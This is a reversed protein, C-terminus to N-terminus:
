GPRSAGRHSRGEGELDRPPRQSGCLQAPAQLPGVSSYPWRGTNVQTRHTEHGLHMFFSEEKGVKYEEQYWKYINPKKKLVHHSYIMTERCLLCQTEYLNGNRGHWSVVNIEFLVYSGVVFLQGLFLSQFCVMELDLVELSHTHACM